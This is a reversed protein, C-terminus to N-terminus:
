FSVQDAYARKAKLFKKHVFDAAKFVHAAAEQTLFWALGPWGVTGSSGVLTSIHGTLKAIFTSLNATMKLAKKAKAKINEQPPANLTLRSTLCTISAHLGQKSEQHCFSLHCRLLCHSHV